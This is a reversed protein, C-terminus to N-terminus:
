LRHPVTLILDIDDRLGYTAITTTKVEDVDEWSEKERGYESNLELQFGGKGQVEADDTILPHAAHSVDCTILTLLFPLFFHSKKLMGNSWINLIGIRLTVINLELIDVRLNVSIEAIQTLQHQFGPLPYLITKM